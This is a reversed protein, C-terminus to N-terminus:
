IEQGWRRLAAIGPKAGDSRVNSAEHTLPDGPSLGVCAVSYGMLQVQFVSSPFTLSGHYGPLLHAPLLLNCEPFGPELLTAPCAM